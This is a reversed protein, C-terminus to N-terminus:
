QYNVRELVIKSIASTAITGRSQVTIEDHSVKVNWYLAWRKLYTKWAKRLDGIHKTEAITEVKGFDTPYKVIRYYMGSKEARNAWLERELYTGNPNPVIVRNTYQM